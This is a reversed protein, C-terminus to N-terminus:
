PKYMRIQRPSTTRQPVAERGATPRAARYSHQILQTGEPRGPARPPRLPGAGPPSRYRAALVERFRGDLRVRGGEFRDAPLQPQPQFRPFRRDPHEHHM